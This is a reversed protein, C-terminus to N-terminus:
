VELCTISMNNEIIYQTTNFHEICYETITPIEVYVIYWYGIIMVIILVLITVSIDVLLQKYDTKM